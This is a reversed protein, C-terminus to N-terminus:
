AVRVMAPVAAGASRPQLNTLLLEVVAGRRDPRSNIARRAPVQWLTLDACEETAARYRAAIEPASSNSIMVYCGRRVLDIVTRCLLSQDEDTFRAATYAGFAATPNLPAYPPDFYLFDRARALRVARTFACHRLRVGPAGLALAAARVAPPDSIRPRPYRGAPVNFAGRANLRFLGNFGTRNLYLLMAALAASYPQAASSAHLPARAANFQARVAYYHRTGERAHRRALEELADIVAESQDRVTEYLGILDANSDSLLVPGGDLRGATHLDFFVAGSGLFPEFYRHFDAPYFWRFVPLLQRKGGAWKLLPRAV